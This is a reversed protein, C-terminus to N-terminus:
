KKNKKRNREYADWYDYPHYDLRIAYDFFNDAFHEWPIIAPNKEIEEWDEMEGRLTEEYLIDHSVIIISQESAKKPHTNYYIDDGTASSDILYFGLKFMLRNFRQSTDGPFDEGNICLDEAKWDKDFFQWFECLREAKDVTYGSINSTVFVNNKEYFKYVLEAVGFKKLLKIAEKPAEKPEFPNGQRDAIKKLSQLTFDYLEEIDKKQSKM